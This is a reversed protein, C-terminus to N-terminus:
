SKGTEDRGALVIRAVLTDQEVRVGEVVAVSEVVGAQPAHLVHEMKMAELVAIRDGLEVRDGEGVYLKAVRGPLPSKVIGGKADVDLQTQKVDAFKIETQALGHLVLVAEGANILRLNPEGKKSRRSSGGALSVHPRGSRWTAEIEVPMGDALLAKREVRAGGLAFGDASSWPSRREASFRLRAVERGTHARLLLAEAGAAIAAGAPAPASLRVKHKEIFSTDYSGEIVQKAGVLAHLFALNTKPGAILTEALARSLRNLADNRTAGHAIIKAMLTDYHSSIRDGERVGADIRVDAGQPWQLAYIRGSSHRFDKNPDEAYLRAEIAAGDRVIESQTAPLREGAAVRLQWEVLDLGTIAETIPHEVQLRTNMELFYFPSDNSLEGSEILFEVTGAGAYDVARAAQVASEAMRACLERPLNPAPTEEVVKQYRRQLSCDREFLHVASGHADAFIQVEIHRPNPIAKEIIIAGDGFAAEAERRAGELAAAFERPHHVFRIGRGGGGAAAKIMVPFGLIKAEAALTKPTQDQGDYGPVVPIGACVMVGRAKDKRGMTRMAAAPPGVFVIGARECANAFDANESLFGYGPHIAAAGSVAAAELIAEINLYSLTTRASGIPCAEDALAVHPATADDDSYVAITRIGLRRATREIRCAIEGRNAILLSSFM